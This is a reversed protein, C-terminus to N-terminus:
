PSLGVRERVTVMTEAAVERAKAAGKGLMDDVAGPDARLEAHRQRIPRLYSNVADAVDTKFDGYGSDAYRRELEAVDADAVAAFMELLNTIGPKEPAARVETGSDTVARKIKQRTTQEDESLLVTGAPSEASKAMKREPEQLDMVRAGAPPFTATPVTFTDGYRHNFRDAIDRTLEVHQRQDAGVPVQESHYLLIDAAQLVPYDFLGVSVTDRGASKEKFQAMRSLEGMTAVCNLVWTCETHERVHSQVFLTAIDPDLGAALWWSALDRTRERLEAPEYPMTMAHLDVICFYHGSAQEDVWRRIAGLFNGLHVEGTPQMGSFVTAM